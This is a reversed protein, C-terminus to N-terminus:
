HKNTIFTKKGIAPIEKESSKIEPRKKGPKERRSEYYCPTQTEWM